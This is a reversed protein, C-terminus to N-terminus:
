TRRRKFRINYAKHRDYWEWLSATRNTHREDPYAVVVPLSSPRLIHFLMLHREWPCLSASGCRSDFRPTSCTDFQYFAPNKNSLNQSIVTTL